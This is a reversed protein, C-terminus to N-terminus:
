TAPASAAAPSARRAVREQPLLAGYLFESVPVSVNSERAMRVLAGTQDELESPRGAQIDRQMSATAQPPLRDINALARAVADPAIRISRSRAVAAVEEMAAALLARSERLARMVGLPARTVAGVAGFPEIFLFKEWAAARVDDVVRVEVGGARLAGALAELRPSGGGRLEGMTVSPAGGVHRVVGPAELSSLLHCLGGAVRAEGLARALEDAAEVGNQLPVVFGGARVLPALSPAVERVQWGKVSVLVADAPSLSAPDDSAEVRPLQFEAVTSKVHLGRERLAALSAGRAVFAVETGGRALLGGLLAGVGGTGVIAVRM